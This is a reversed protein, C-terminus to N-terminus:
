SFKVNVIAGGSVLAYVSDSSSAILANICSGLNIEGQAEIKNDAIKWRRVCGDWGGTWAINGHTSLSTVIM